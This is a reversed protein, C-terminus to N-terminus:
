PTVLVVLLPVSFRFERSHLTATLTVRRVGSRQFRHGAALIAVFLLENSRHKAAVVLALGTMLVVTLRCWCFRHLARTAVLRALRQGRASHGSVGLAFVAVSRMIRAAGCNLTTPTTVVIDSGFMGLIRSCTRANTTM